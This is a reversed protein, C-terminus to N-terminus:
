RHDRDQCDCGANTRDCQEHNGYKCWTCTGYGNGM